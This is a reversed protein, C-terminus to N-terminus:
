TEKELSSIQFNFYKAMLIAKLCSQSNWKNLSTKCRLKQDELSM